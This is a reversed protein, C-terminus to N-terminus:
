RWCKGSPEPSCSRKGAADKLLSLSCGGSPFAPAPIKGSGLQSWLRLNDGADPQTKEGGPGQQTAHPCDALVCLFPVLGDESGAEAVSNKHSRSGTDTGRVGGLLCEQVRSHIRFNSLCLSSVLQATHAPAPHDKSAPKPRAPQSEWPGADRALPRVKSFAAKGREWCGLISGRDCGHQM